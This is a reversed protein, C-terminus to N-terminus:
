QSAELATLRKSFDSKIIRIDEEIQALKGNMKTLDDKIGGTRINLMTIDERNKAVMGMTSDLKDRLANQGEIIVKIESHIKELIVSFERDKNHEKDKPEKKM